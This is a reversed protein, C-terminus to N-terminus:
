EEKVSKAIWEPLMQKLTLFGQSTERIKIKKRVKKKYNVNRISLKLKNSNDDIEMIEANIEEGISVFDLPDRVFGHSIESIHILGDYYEDCAVFIGYKEVGTVTVKIIKGVKHRTM